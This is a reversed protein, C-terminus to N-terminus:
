LLRDLEDRKSPVAKGNVELLIDHPKLGVKAAASNAGVEEIVMGQDRPLDLQDVLTASPQRLQAGLRAEQASPMPGGPGFPVNPMGPFAPFAGPLPFGLGGDPFLGGKRLQELHRKMRERMQEMRQRMEKMQDKDLGPPLRRLMEEIDPFGDR